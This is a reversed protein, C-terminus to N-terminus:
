SNAEIYITVSRNTKCIEDLFAQVPFHTSTPELDVGSNQVGHEHTEKLIKTM